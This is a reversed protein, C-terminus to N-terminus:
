EGGEKQAFHTELATATMGQFTEFEDPEIDYYYAFFIKLNNEMDDFYGARPDDAAPKGEYFRLLAGAM